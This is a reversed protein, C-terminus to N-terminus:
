ASVAREPAEHAGGASEVAPARSYFGLRRAVVVAIISVTPILFDAPLAWVNDPATNGHAVLQMIHGIGDGFFYIALGALLADTWGSRFRRMVCLVGLVGFAIDAWGVEWQFMSPAYGIQDAISTSTPGVHFIGGWLSWAGFGVVLWLAALEAVRGKTRRFRSRDFGIHLGLGIIIVAWQFLFYGM